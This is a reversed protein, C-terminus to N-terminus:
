GGVVEVGRGGVIDELESFTVGDVVGDGGVWLMGSEDDVVGDGVVWPV